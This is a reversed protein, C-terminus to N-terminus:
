SIKSSIRENTILVLLEIDRFLSYKIKGVFNTELMLSIDGLKMRTYAELESEFECWLGRRYRNEAVVLVVHQKWLVRGVQYLQVGDAGVTM